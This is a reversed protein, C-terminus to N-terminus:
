HHAGPKILRLSCLVYATFYMKICSLKISRSVKLGQNANVPETGFLGARIICPLTTHEMLKLIAAMNHSTTTMSVRGRAIGLSERTEIIIPSRKAARLEAM